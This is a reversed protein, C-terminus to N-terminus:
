RPDQKSTPQQTLLRHATLWEEADTPDAIDISAIPQGDDGTLQATRQTPDLIIAKGKWLTAETPPATIILEPMGQIVPVPVTKSAWYVPLTTPTPDDGRTLNEDPKSPLIFVSIGILLLLTACAMAFQPQTFLAVLQAWFSPKEAVVERRRVPVTSGYREELSQLVDEPIPPSDADAPPVNSEQMVAILRAQHDPREPQNHM